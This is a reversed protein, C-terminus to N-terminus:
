VHNVLQIHEPKIILTEETKIRWKKCKACRSFNSLGNQFSHTQVPVTRESSGTKSFCVQEGM